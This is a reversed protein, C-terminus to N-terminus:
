VDVCMCVQVCLDICGCMYTCLDICGCMFVQVCLDICGCVYVSRYMMWVCVCKLVSKKVCCEIDPLVSM